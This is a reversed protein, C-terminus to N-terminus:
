GILLATNNLIIKNVDILRAKNDKLDLEVLSGHNALASPMPGTLDNFPLKLVVLGRAWAAPLSGSLSNNAAELMLLSPQAALSGPVAGVLKNGSLALTQLQSGGTGFADAPLSGQPPPRRVSPEARPRNPPPPPPAVAPGQSGRRAQRSVLRRSALAARRRRERFVSCCRKSILACPLVLSAELGNQELGLAYLSSNGFLCPPLTGALRNSGLLLTGLAGRGVLDCLERTGGVDGEIHNGDLAVEWLGPLRALQQSVYSLNGTLNNSSLYLAQLKPYQAFLEGPFECSMNYGGWLPCGLGAPRRTAGPWVLADRAPVAFGTPRLRGRAQMNLQTLDGGEDCINRTVDCLNTQVTKNAYASQREWEECAGEGRCCREYLQQAVRQGVQGMVTTNAPVTQVTINYKVATAQPGPNYVTCYFTPTSNGMALYPLSNPSIFIVDQYVGIRESRFDVLGPSPVILYNTALTLASSCYLDVDGAEQGAQEVTSLTILLGPRSDAPATVNYVKLQGPLLAGTYNFEGQAQAAALRAACAALLVLLAARGRGAGGGSRPAAM